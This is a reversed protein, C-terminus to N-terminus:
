PAVRRMGSMSSASCCRTTAADVASFPEDMLIVAADQLITRAFLLRQFQGASLAHVPRMELGTLGVRTMADLRRRWDTSEWPAFRVWAQHPM